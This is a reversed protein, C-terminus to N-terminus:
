SFSSCCWAQQFKHLCYPWSFGQSKASEKPTALRKLFAIRAPCVGRRSWITVKGAHQANTWLLAHRVTVANNAFVMKM